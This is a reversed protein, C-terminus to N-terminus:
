TQKKSKNQWRQKLARPIRIPICVEHMPDGNRNDVSHDNRTKRPSKVTIASANSDVQQAIMLIAISTILHLLKDIFYKLM